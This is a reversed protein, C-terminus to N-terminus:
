SKQNDDGAFSADDRIRSRSVKKDTQFVGNKREGGYNQVTILAILQALPLKLM